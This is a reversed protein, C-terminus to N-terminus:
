KKQGSKVEQESQVIKPLNYILGPFTAAYFATVINTALSGLTQLAQAAQWQDPRSIGCM